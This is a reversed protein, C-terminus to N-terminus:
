ELEENNDLKIVLGMRKDRKLEQFNIFTKEFQYKFIDSFPKVYQFLNM